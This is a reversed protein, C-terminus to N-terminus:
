VCLSAFMFFVCVRLARVSLSAVLRALTDWKLHRCFVAVMGCFMKAEARLQQLAGRGVM